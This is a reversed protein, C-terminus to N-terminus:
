SARGLEDTSDHKRRGARVTRDRGAWVGCSPALADAYARCAALAPCPQCGDIARAADAGTEPQWTDPAAACPPDAGDLVTLLALLLPAARVAAVAPEPLGGRAPPARWPAPWRTHPGSGGSM